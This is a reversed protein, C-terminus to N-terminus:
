IDIGYQAKVREKLERVSQEVSIREIRFPPRPGGYTLAYADAM